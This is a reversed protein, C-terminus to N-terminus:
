RKIQTFYYAAGGALLLLIVLWLWTSGSKKPYMQAYPVPEISSPPADNKAFIQQLATVMERASTFRDDRERACAKAFWADLASPLGPKLESPRPLARKEIADAIQRLTEGPFARKGTFAEFAVAGLSFLDSRPDLKTGTMQEPSMYQPTGVIMGEQTLQATLRDVKKAFGFDLLKVLYKDGTFGDSKMLFVNAPKIDRHVINNEHARHLAQGVQTVISVVDKAPLPGEGLTAELDKGALLEMVIYPSGKDTVGYDLMQVVHPSQVTMASAAERAFRERSNEDDALNGALLKVAVESRLGEHKAIWVTGMGGQILPRVLVLDKAIREGPSPDPV